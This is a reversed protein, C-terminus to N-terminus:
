NERSGELDVQLGGLDSRAFAVTMGHLKTVRHTIGLGLGHGDRRRTRAADEPPSRLAAIEDDTIHPGDDVVRVRFRSGELDSVVIAVHGGARNHFIANFVVNGIAQELFTEDGLILIPMEPVACAIEVGHQRAIPTHRAVCREVVRGVDVPVRVFHPEGAELRAAIALNNVLAAIYSAEDIAAELSARDLQKEATAADRLSALHGQIVTLPTMVDHTTNALFDRLTRERRSQADVHARVERAAGDFAAALEEIEDNGKMSIRDRYDHLRLARVKSALERIRAVLPGLAILLAAFLAVLLAGWTRLLIEPTPATMTAPRVALVYACAGTGWPTRLLAAEDVGHPGHSTFHRADADGSRASEVLSHDLPPSWHASPKLDADFPFLHVLPVGGLPPPRDPPRQLSRTWDDPSAECRPRADADLSARADAVLLDSAARERVRADVWALCAALPIMLVLTTLALRPRLKM